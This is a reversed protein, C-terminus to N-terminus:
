VDVHRTSGSQRVRYSKYSLNAITRGVAKCGHVGWSDPLVLMLVIHSAHALPKAPTSSALKREIFWRIVLCFVPTLLLGFTV